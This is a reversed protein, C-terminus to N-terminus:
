AYRVQVGKRRYRATAGILGFGVLMMLWTAPEPVVPATWAQGNGTGTTYINSTNLNGYGYPYTITVNSYTNSPLGVAYPDSTGIAPLNVRYVSSGALGVLDSYAYYTQGGNLVINSGFTYSGNAVSAQGLYNSYGPALSLGATTGAYPSSFLYLNGNVASGNTPNSYTPYQNTPPAFAFSIGGTISGSTTFSFSPGSEVGGPPTGTTQASAMQASAILPIAFLANRAFISLKRM